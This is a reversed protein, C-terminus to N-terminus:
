FRALLRDAIFRGSAMMVMFSTYGLIVLSQPAHVVDKFYVGSWDFMAGETAMSCFGIIGLQLLIPDRTRPKGPEAKAVEASPESPAFFSRISPIIVSVIAMIILFHTLPSLHLNMAALGVLGGTFGAMSWAGHFAAMIPRGYLKEALVGQTNVSISAVNGLVGFFFLGLALAAPSTALGLVVLSLAYGPLAFPLIRNSGYRAVLKGSFQLCLLQGIPLAFLVKGLAGDSLALATKIDPIRS